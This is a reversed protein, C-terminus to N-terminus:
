GGRRPMRFPLLCRVWGSAFKDLDLSEHIATASEGEFAARIRSRTYFPTDELMKLTEVDSAQAAPVSRPVRWIPGPKLATAQPCESEHPAANADYRLALRKKHGNKLLADYYIGAEGGPLSARCWDWSQFGDELSESGWNSDCYGEGSWRMKPNAFDVDVRASPAIPQWIHRGNQDLEFAKTAQAHPTLTITGSVRRPLPVAWEKITVVLKGDEWKLDSPGIKLSHPTQDLASRGRETM